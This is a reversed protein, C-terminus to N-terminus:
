GDDNEPQPETSEVPPAPTRTTPGEQLLKHYCELADEAHELLVGRLNARTPRIGECECAWMALKLRAFNLREKDAGNLGPIRDMQKVIKAFRQIDPPLQM